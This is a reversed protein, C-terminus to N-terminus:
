PGDPQELAQQVGRRWWPDTAAPQELLLEALAARVEDPQEPELLLDPEM